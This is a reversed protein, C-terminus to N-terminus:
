PRTLSRRASITWVRHWVPGRREHLKEESLPFRLKVQAKELTREVILAFAGEERQLTFTADARIEEEDIM